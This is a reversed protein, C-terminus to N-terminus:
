HVPGCLLADTWRLMTSTWGIQLPLTWDPAGLGMLLDISDVERLPSQPAHAESVVLALTPVGRKLEVRTEM